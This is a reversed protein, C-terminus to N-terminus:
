IKNDTGRAFLYLKNAYNTTELASSTRGNGPVESWRSWKGTTATFTNVYIKNDSGRAFVYDKGAYYTTAQASSTRGNGPVEHWLSWKATAVNQMTVTSSAPSASTGSPLAFLGVLVLLTMLGVYLRKM